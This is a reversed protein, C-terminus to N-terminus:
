PGIRIRYSGPPLRNGLWFVRALYDAFYANVADPAYSGDRLNRSGELAVAGVLGAPDVAASFELAFSTGDAPLPADDFAPLPASVSRELVVRGTAASTVEIFAARPAVWPSAPLDRRGIGGFPNGPPDTALAEAPNGPVAFPPWALPPALDTPPFAYRARYDGFTAAPDRAPVRPSANWATPLFLPQPDNLETQERLLPDLAALGLSPKTGAAAPPARPPLRFLALVALVAAIAGAGAALWRGQDRGAAAGM